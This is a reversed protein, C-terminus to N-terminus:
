ILKCKIATIQFPYVNMIKKCFMGEWHWSTVKGEGDYLKGHKQESTKVSLNIITDLHKRLAICVSPVDPLELFVVYWPWGQGGPTEWPRPSQPEGPLRFPARGCSSPAGAVGGGSHPGEAASSLDAGDAADGGGAGGRAGSGRQQPPPSRRELDEAGIWGGRGRLLDRTQGAGATGAPGAPQNRPARTSAPHAAEAPKLPGLTPFPARGRGGGRSSAAKLRSGDLYLHNSLHWAPGSGPRQPISPRHSPVNERPLVDPRPTVASGPVPRSGSPLAGGGGGAKRSWSTLM